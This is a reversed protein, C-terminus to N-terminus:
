QGRRMRNFLVLSCTICIFFCLNLAIIYPMTTELNGGRIFIDLFANLGWGLPSIISIDQMLPPMVYVPVMIGGIAATIVILIAGLTSAQEYSKALVGFLIGFGCAALGSSLAVVVLAFPASGIELVPTGLLPLIFRGVLLMLVFQVMSITLYALVKALLFEFSNIPMTMLRTLTADQRERILTGSLPLIIFFMGFLTWAPVNHQVSTPMNASDQHQSLEEKIEILSQKSWDNNIEPFDIPLSQAGYESLQHTIEKKFEESLIEAFLKSKQQIELGLVSLHVAGLINSRFVEQAAPDFYLILEAKNLLVTEGRIAALISIATKQNLDSSFGKPIILAFQFKGSLVQQRATEQGIKEGSLTEIIKLSEDNSLTDALTKGLAGLDQNIVLANTVTNGNARFLNDQVLSLVLVLLMPMVFLVGLGARDRSLLLLEKKIHVFLLM